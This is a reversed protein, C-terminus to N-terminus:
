LYTMGELNVSDIHNIVGCIFNAGFSIVTQFNHSERESVM